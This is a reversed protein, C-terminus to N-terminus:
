TGFMHFPPIESDSMTDVTLTELFSVGNYIM